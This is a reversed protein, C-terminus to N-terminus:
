GRILKGTSPNVHEAHSAPAIESRFRATLAGGNPLTAKAQGDLGAAIEVSVHHVGAKVPIVTWEFIRKHQPALAGLAWTNVYGTQGGGPENVVRSEAPPKPPDGPGQEVVWVPRKERALQPYTKTYYFADLTVAIDPITQTDANSVEIRMTAPVGVRQAPKFTLDLVEIKYTHPGEAQAQASSSHSGGGCGSALLATCGCLVVVSM